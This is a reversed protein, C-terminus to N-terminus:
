FEDEEAGRYDEFWERAELENDFEADYDSNEPTYLDTDGFICVYRGDVTNYYLSYDTWFDDWDKVSKRDLRKWESPGDDYDDWLGESLDDPSANRPDLAAKYANKLDSILVRIKKGNKSPLRIETQPLTADTRRTGASSLNTEKTKTGGKTKVPYTITDISTMLIDPHVNSLMARGTYYPQLRYVPITSSREPAEKLRKLGENKNSAFLGQVYQQYKKQFDTNSSATRIMDIFTSMYETFKIDIGRDEEESWIYVVGRTDFGSAEIYWDEQEDVEVALNSFYAMADTWEEFPDIEEIEALFQKKASRFDLGETLLSENKSNAFLGKIYQRYKLKFIRDDTSTAICLAMNTDFNVFDVEVERGGEEDQIIYRGYSGYGSPEIFWGEAEDVQYALESFYDAAPTGEGFPDIEDENMEDMFQQKASHFDLGEALLSENKRNSLERALTKSDRSLYLNRNYDVPELAKYYDWMYQEEQESRATDKIDQQMKDDFLSERNSYIWDKYSEGKREKSWLDKLAKMDAFYINYLLNRVAWELKAARSTPFGRVAFDQRGAELLSEELDDDDEEGNFYEEIEDEHEKYEEEVWRNFTEEFEDELVRYESPTLDRIEFADHAWRNVYADSGYEVCERLIDEIWGEIDDYSIVDAELLQDIYDGSVDVDYTERPVSDKIEALLGEDYDEFMDGTPEALLHTNNLIYKGLKERISNIADTYSDDMLAREAISLFVDALEPVHTMIFAAAEGCTELGYGDYFVDGDNFDRYSIREMARALEGALNDSKGSMPVCAHFVANITDESETDAKIEALLDKAKEALQARREAEAKRAKEQNEKEVAGKALGRLNISDPDNLQDDPITVTPAETLSQRRNTKSSKKSEDMLSDYCENTDEASMALEPNDELIYDYLAAMNSDLTGDEDIAIEYERSIGTNTAQGAYISNTESDVVVYYYDGNPFTIVPEKDMHNYEYFVSEASEELKKFYSTFGENLIQTYHKAM